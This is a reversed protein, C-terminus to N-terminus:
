GKDVKDVKTLGPTSIDSLPRVIALFADECEHACVLAYTRVNSQSCFLRKCIVSRVTEEPRM